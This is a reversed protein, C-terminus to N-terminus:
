FRPYYRLIGTKDGTVLFGNPMSPTLVTLKNQDRSEDLRLQNLPIEINATCSGDLMWFLISGNAAFTLFDPDEPQVKPLLSCVGLVCDGHAPLKEAIKPLASATTETEIISISIAHNSGVTIIRKGVIGIGLIDPRKEMNPSLTLCPSSSDSSAARRILVDLSMSCHMGDEGAFWVLGNRRDFTMCFIGFRAKAVIELKQIGHTDDLLCIDGQVTSLIAKCDSVAVSHSFTSDILCGLLCNRGLFTKPAPSTPAFAIKSEVYPRIRSPSASSGQDVRWVKVHRAGATIVSSGM